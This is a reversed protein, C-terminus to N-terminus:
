QLQGTNTHSIAIKVVFGNYPLLWLLPDTLIDVENPLPKLLLHSAQVCVYVYVCMGLVTIRAACAQWHNDLEM